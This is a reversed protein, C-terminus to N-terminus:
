PASIGDLERGLLDQLLQGLDGAQEPAAGSRNMGLAREVRVRITSGAARAAVSLGRSGVESDIGVTVTCSRALEAARRWKAEGIVPYAIFIDDCGGAAFVEAEAVKAVTIGAAGAHLQLKAITPVKHTKVHPRLKAGTAGIKAQWAQINREMRDLDVILGPTDLDDITMGPSAM